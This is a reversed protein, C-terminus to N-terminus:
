DGGEVGNMGTALTRGRVVDSLMGGANGTATCGNLEVGEEVQGLEGDARGGSDGQM